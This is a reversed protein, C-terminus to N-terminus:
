RIKAKRSQAPQGPAAHRRRPPTAGRASPVKRSRTLGFSTPLRIDDHGDGAGIEARRQCRVCARCGRAREASAAPPRGPGDSTDPLIARARVLRAIPPTALSACRLVHLQLRTRTAAARTPRPQPRARSTSATPSTATPGRSTGNGHRRDSRAGPRARACERMPTPDAADDTRLATRSTRRRGPSTVGPWGPDGEEAAASAPPRGSGRGPRSRAARRRSRPGALSRGGPGPSRASAGARRSPVCRRGPRGRYKACSHCSPVGKAVHIVRYQGQLPDPSIRTMRVGDSFAWCATCSPEGRGAVARVHERRVPAAHADLERTNVAGDM